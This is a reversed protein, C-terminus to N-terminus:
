YNSFEISNPPNMVAAFRIPDKRDEFYIVLQASSPVVSTFPVQGLYEYAIKKVRSPEFKFRGRVNTIPSTSWDLKWHNWYERATLFPVLRPMNVERDFMVVYHESGSVTLLYNVFREDAFTVKDVEQISKINPLPPFVKPKSIVNSLCKKMTFLFARECQADDVACDKQDVFGHKVLTKYFETKDDPTSNPAQFREYSLFVDTPETDGCSELHKYEHKKRYFSVADPVAHLTIHAYGNRRAYDELRHMLATGAGAGRGCILDIYVGMNRSKIDVDDTQTAFGIVYKEINDIADDINKAGRAAIFITKSDQIAHKAYGFGIGSCFDPKLNRGFRGIRYLDATQYVTIGNNLVQDPLLSAAKRLDAEM